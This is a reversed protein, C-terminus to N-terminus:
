LQYWYAVTAIDDNRQLYRELPVEWGLDQMEIRLSKRFCIPDPIHWRYLSFKAEGPAGPLMQHMGMFPTSYTLQKDGERWDYAGGFYDETGTGCITPFEGDEDVWIKVEGEGWWNPQTSPQIFYATGVYRGAGHVGDLVVHTKGTEVPNTQRFCAHFRGANEAVPGMACSIRYFCLYEMDSRNELEVRCHKGFPMSWFCNFGRNPNVVVPLSNLQSFPGSYCDDTHEQWSYAFFEPLPCEVSPKEEGDWWIRLILKRPIGGAFWMSRVTGPGDVDLIHVTQGPAVPVFPSWKWGVGLHAGRFKAPGETASGGVGPLGQPNEATFVRTVTGDLLPLADLFMM